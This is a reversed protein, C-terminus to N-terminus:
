QVLGPADGEGSINFVRTPDFHRCPPRDRRMRRRGNLGPTSRHHSAPIARAAADFRPPPPRHGIPLIAARTPQGTFACLLLLRDCVRKPPPSGGLHASPAARRDKNRYITTCPWCATGVIQAGNHRSCYPVILMPPYVIFSLTLPPTHLIMEGAIAAYAALTLTTLRGARWARALVSGDVIHLPHLKLGVVGEAIVKSLTDLCATADEGPLGIIIHTCVKLGRELALAVTRQYCAFDHGRNIRRLTKDQASQLGLELWIEYGKDQYEALLDLVSLPVCDPRTGVCLGAINGQSLAQQYLSDLVRVEAYTSTYAQFYALYRKARDM